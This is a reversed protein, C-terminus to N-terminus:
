VQNCVIMMQTELAKNIEIANPQNIFKMIHGVERVSYLITLRPTFM